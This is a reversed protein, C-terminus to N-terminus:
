ENVPVPYIDARQDYKKGWFVEPAMYNKAGAMTSAITSGSIVRAVGFDGLKYDGNDSVFINSPKIDRHIIGHKQCLELGNCIDIGIRQVDAIELKKKEIYRNLPTLLEMRIFIDWGFRDKREVIIHDEYSVINSNGKLKFMLKSEDAFSDVMNRFYTSVAEESMGESSVHRYEDEDRPISVCKLASYFEEGYEEKVIEFVTGYSGSGIEKVIRWSGFIPEFDKYYTINM